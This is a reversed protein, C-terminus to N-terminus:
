CFGEFDGFFFRFHAQLLSRDELRLLVTVLANHWDGNDPLAHLYFLPDEGLLTSYSDRDPLRPLM